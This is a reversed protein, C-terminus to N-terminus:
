SYKYYFSAWQKNNAEVITYNYLRYILRVKDM